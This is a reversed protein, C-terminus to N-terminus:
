VMWKVLGHPAGTTHEKLIRRVVAELEDRRAGKEKWVLSSVVEDPSAGEGVAGKVMEESPVGYRRFKGWNADPGVKEKPRPHLGDGVDKPPCDVLYPSDRRFFNAKIAEPQLFPNDLDTIPPDFPIPTKKKDFLSHVAGVILDNTARFGGTFGTCMLSDQEVTTAYRKAKGASHYNEVAVAMGTPGRTDMMKRQEAAWARVQPSGSVEEEKLAKYIASLSPLSFTRDLFARIEGKIPTSGNPNQKSALGESAPVHYESVITSIEDATPSDLKSLRAKLEPVAEEAVYHSAIGLEFAERGFVDRGTLALWTGIQGDLQNMFYSGGFDPSFGIRQEPMAYMTRPTAIRIDAPLALGAGGGV